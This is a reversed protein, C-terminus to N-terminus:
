GQVAPAAGAGASSDAYANARHKPTFEFTAPTPGLLLETIKVWDNANPSAMLTELDDRGVFRPPRDQLKAPLRELLGVPVYRHLFSLWELLFNRVRSVGLDDSGWHELGYRTFEKLLELRESSSIDWHRREKIETFLWPKVLAGRAVMVSTVGGKLAADVDEYCFVDGNGLLPVNCAAACQSIYGWDASKSYRQQRSRGHLTLASAGWTALKPILQHATAKSTDYGTRMKLTLPCSLLETMTRVIGEVKSHRTALQAGCGKNCVVDIPCGMNIDVFDVSLQDSVLQAAKGLSEAGNGALQVGFLDECPHRRLLAWESAQGQLLNVAMAMEGCTVDVGLRKCVRRFPLNGVTTLPALYLKGSLDLPKRNREPVDAAAGLTEVAPAVAKAPQAKAEVKVEPKVEAAAKAEAPEGLKSIFAEDSGKAAQGTEMAEAVEALPAAAPPPPPTPTPMPPPAQGAQQARRAAEKAAIEMIAASAAAHRQEHSPGPQQQRPAGNNNRRSIEDVVRKSVALARSFDYKNRRLSAILEASPVNLDSPVEECTERGAEFVNSGDPRVHATGFRCTLGFRCFGHLTYLPCLEDLDAPRSAMYSALDHSFRCDDGFKCGLGKTFSQCMKVTQTPRHHTRNKNMGRQRKAAPQEAASSGAAEAADDATAGDTSAAPVPAAEASSPAPAAAAAATAFNTCVYEKKVPAQGVPHTSPVPEESTPAGDVPAKAWPAILHHQAHPAM